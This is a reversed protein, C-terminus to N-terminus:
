SLVLGREEGVVLYLGEEMLESVREVAHEGAALVAGEGAGIHRAVEHFQGRLEVLVEEALLLEEVGESLVVLGALRHRLLQYILNLARLGIM